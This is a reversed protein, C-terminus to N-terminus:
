NSLYSMECYATLKKLTDVIVVEVDVFPENLIEIYNKVANLNKASISKNQITEHLILSVESLTKSLNQLPKIKPNKTLKVFDDHNMAWTKLYSLVQIANPRNSDNIFNNALHNFDSADKADVVCADAFLNFPSFSKYEIGGKNRSYVKLPECIKSLAILSTIDQNNTMGRLIVDRNKIHTIGLEELHFSVRKLRKKM